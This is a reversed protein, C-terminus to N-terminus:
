FSSGELTILPLKEAAGCYRSYKEVIFKDSEFALEPLDKPFVLGSGGCRGRGAATRPCAAACSRGAPLGAVIFHHQWGWARRMGTQFLSLIFFAFFCGARRNRAM